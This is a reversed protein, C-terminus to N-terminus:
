VSLSIQTLYCKGRLRWRSNSWEAVLKYFQIPSPQHFTRETQVSIHRRYSIQTGGQLSQVFHNRPPHILNPCPHGGDLECRIYGTDKYNCRKAKASDTAALARASIVTGRSAGRRLNKLSGVDAGGAARQCRHQRGENVSCLELSVWCPHQRPHYPTSDGHLHRSRMEATKEASNRDQHFNNGFLM